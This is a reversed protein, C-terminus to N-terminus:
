TLYRGFERIISARSNQNAQAEYTRKSCWELVMEKTLSNAKPYKEVTFQDFRRLHDAETDYKYGVAQKLAIFNQIHEKLPGRYLINHM